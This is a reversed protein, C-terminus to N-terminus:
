ALARQYIEMLYKAYNGPDHQREIRDLSAIGKARISGLDTFVEHMIRELGEEIAKSLQIRQEESQYYAEGLADHPVDIMWGTKEDNVEPLARINTTIVPVGNAQFELVSFGYTDAYTPLLGVHATKMVELVQDNPLRSYHTIWDRNKAIMEQTWRLDEETEHAAYGDMRLSSIISLEIPYHHVRVFYEFVRLIERGGKRFFGAGVLVFRIPGDVDLHKEDYTNVMKVQPPALVTLKANIKRSDIKLRSLLDLQIRRACDSLAILQKCADGSLADFARREKADLRLTEPKPNYKSLLGKFRPLLTEFNSVWPTKGYSIGNFLHVIDVSNLGLDDFQNNLDFTNILSHRAFHNIKQSAYNVLSYYDYVKRYEVDPVQHLITRTYSYYNWRYFLVGVKIM